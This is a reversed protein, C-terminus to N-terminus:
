YTEYVIELINEKFMKEDKNRWFFIKLFTKEFEQKEYERDKKEKKKKRSLKHHEKEKFM